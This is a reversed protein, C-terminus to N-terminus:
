GCILRAINLLVREAVCVDPLPQSWALQPQSPEFNLIREAIRCAAPNHASSRLTFHAFLVCGLGGIVFHHSM